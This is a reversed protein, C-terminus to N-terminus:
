LLNDEACSMLSSDRELSSNIKMSHQARDKRDKGGKIENGKNQEEKDRNRRVKM